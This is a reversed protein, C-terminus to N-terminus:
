YVILYLFLNFDVRKIVVSKQVSLRAYMSNKTLMKWDKVNRTFLCIM